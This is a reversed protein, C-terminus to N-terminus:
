SKGDAGNGVQGAALRRALEDIDGAGVMLLVDVDPFGELWACLEKEGKCCVAPTGQRGVQFALFEDLNPIYDERAAYVPLIAVAEAGRFSEAFSSILSLTRSYTHPQFVCLFRESLDKTMALLSKIEQPHHAYDSIVTFHGYKGLREFRRDVGRFGHLGSRIGEAPLGCVTAAAAAARANYVNHLGYVGSEVTFLKKGYAYVDFDSGGRQENKLVACFDAQHFVGFTVCDPHRLSRCAECDANVILKKCRDAYAQFAEVVDGLSAYCDPHDWDVNLIIGIDPKLSLFSRRYECAETIFCDAGGARLNGGLAADRGGLHVTPDAGGACFVEGLMATTTTKGHTGAVAIVRNYCESLASLLKHREMVCLGRRIAESLEPHGPKVASTFVVCQADALYAASHGVHIEAGMARLEALLASDALDSGSVKKGCLILLKALASMSIGGIGILHYREFRDLIREEM